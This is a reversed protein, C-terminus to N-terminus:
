SFTTSPSTGISGTNEFTTSIIPRLLYAELKYSNPVRKLKVKVVSFMEVVMRYKQPQTQTKPYDLILRLVKKEHEFSSRNVDVTPPPIKELIWNPDDECKQFFFLWRLVTKKRSQAQENYHPM